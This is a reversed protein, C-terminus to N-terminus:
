LVEVLPTRPAIARYLRATRGSRNRRREGTKEARGDRELERRRASVSQHRMRLKIELDEDTAGNLGFLTLAAHVRERLTPAIHILAQAAEYSTDSGAVHPPFGDYEIRATM